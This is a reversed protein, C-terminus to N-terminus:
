RKLEFSKEAYRRVVKISQVTKDFKVNTLGPFGQTVGLVRGTHDVTAEYALTPYGSEKGTQLIM